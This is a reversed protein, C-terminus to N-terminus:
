INEIKFINWKFIFIYTKLFFNFKKYNYIIVIVKKERIVGEDAPVVGEDARVAGESNKPQATGEGRLWATGCCGCALARERQEPAARPGARAARGGRDPVLSPAHCRQGVAPLRCGRAPAALGGASGRGSRGLARSCWRQGPVPDSSWQTQSLRTM